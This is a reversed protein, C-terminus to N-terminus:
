AQDIGGRAEDPRTLDRLAVESLRCGQRSPSHGKRDAPRVLCARRGRRRLSRNPARARRVVARSRRHRRSCPVHRARVGHRKTRVPDRGAQAPDPRSRDASRTAAVAASRLVGRALGSRLHVLRQRRHHRRAARLAFADGLAAHPRDRRQHDSGERHVLRNGSRLSRAPLLRLLQRLIRRRERSLLAQVGSLAARGADQQAGHGAHAPEGAGAGPGDHLDQGIRDCRAAGPALRGPELGRGARARCSGPGRPSRFRQRAQISRARVAHTRLAPFRTDRLEGIDGM